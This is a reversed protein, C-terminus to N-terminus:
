FGRVDGGDGHAGRLPPRAPPNFDRRGPHENRVDGYGWVLNEDSRMRDESPSRLAGRAHNWATVCTEFRLVRPLLRQTRSGAVESPYSFPPRLCLPHAM